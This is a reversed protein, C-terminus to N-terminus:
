GFLGGLISMLDQNKGAGAGYALGGMNQGMQGYMQALIDAAHQGMGMQGFLGQGYQQNVGLVKQLWSNMDQSSIDRANQQEFQAMPTSGLGGAATNGVSGMNGAARLAQQQQYKAYPSEQYNGMLKNMFGSPDKMGSLWEEYGPMAKKGFDLFPNQVGEAKGMYEQYQKMADKYPRDSHGFLGGLISGLPSRGGYGGGFGQQGAGGMGFMQGGGGGGGFMGMLMQLTAPDM